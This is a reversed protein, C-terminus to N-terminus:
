AAWLTENMAAVLARAHAQTPLGAQVVLPAPTAAAADRSLARVAESQAQRLRARAAADLKTAAWRATAWALAAHRTEDAAIATMAARVEPDAAHAAQWSAVLAGFTERVCGEVANERAMEELSRPEHPAIRAAKPAKGFRRALRGMMRAHRVEDRASRSALQVLAEPAGHAVLEDRLRAFAEVSAAELHAVEAFYDALATTATTGGPADTAELGAPRRGVTSCISYGLRAPTGAPDSVGGDVCQSGWIRCNFFGGDGTWYQACANLYLLCNSTPQNAPLGCPLNVFTYCDVAPLPAADPGADDAVYSADDSYPPSPDCAPNPSTDATADDPAAQADAADLPPTATTADPTPRVVSGDTRADLGADDVGNGEGADNGATAAENSTASCAYIGTPAALSVLLLRRFVRRLRAEERRILIVPRRTTTM